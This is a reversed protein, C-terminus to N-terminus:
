RQSALKRLVAKAEDYQKFEHEKQAFESTHAAMRNSKWTLGLQRHLLEHYVILDIVFEPVAPQDLLMNVMVTDQAHDYHGFKRTAFNGSWVLRPRSMGGQFYAANVRDFSDVLDHHLGRTEAVVGGLLELAADIRRYAEGGAADHVAKRDGGKKFAIRAVAQLVNQHSCIMPTPLDVLVTDPYARIHYMGRMPRFRVLIAASPSALKTGAARFVPEARRVAGCYREFNERRAFYAFWGRMERAKKRLQEPRIHNARVDEEIRASDSVIKEYVEELEPRDVNRALRDLLNEFHRALGRFSVSDPPFGNDAASEAPVIADVNLGRLFQFARRSPAPLNRVQLRKERFIQEIGAITGEVEERLQALREASVPGALEQRVRKAFGVLGAIQLRKM